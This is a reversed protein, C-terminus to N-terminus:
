VYIEERNRTAYHQQNVKACAFCINNLGDKSGRDKCFSARGLCEHCRSCIKHLDPHGGAQFIRMRAHLLNHYTTDQCIVLNTNANNGRNQDHHHVPVGAPLIKGLAKEAVLIHAMVYGSKTAHPHNPRRVMVYGGNKRTGGRWAANREGHARPGSALSLRACPRSCHKGAGQKAASARVLFNAGCQVCSRPLLQAM